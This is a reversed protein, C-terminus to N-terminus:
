NGDQRRINIAHVFWYNDDGVWYTIFDEGRYKQVRLNHVSGKEEHHWVLQGKADLLLAKNDNIGSGHPALFTYAKSDCRSDWQRVNVMPATYDTSRFSIQPYSGRSGAEYQQWIDAPLDDKVVIASNQHSTAYAPAIALVAFLCAYLHSQTMRSQSQTDSTDERRTSQVALLSISSTVTPPHRLSSAATGRIRWSLVFCTRPRPMCRQCERRRARAM